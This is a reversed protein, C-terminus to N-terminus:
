ISQPLSRGREWIPNHSYGGILFPLHVVSKKEVGIEEIKAYILTSYDPGLGREIVFGQQCMCYMRSPHSGCGFLLAPIIPHATLM